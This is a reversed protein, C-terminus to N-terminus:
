LAAAARRAVTETEAADGGNDAQVARADVHEVIRRSKFDLQVKRQGRVTGRALRVPPRGGFSVASSMSAALATSALGSM